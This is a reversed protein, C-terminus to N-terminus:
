GQKFKKETMEDLEKDEYELKSINHEKKSNLQKGKEHKMYKLM